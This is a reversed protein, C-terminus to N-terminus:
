LGGVNATIIPPLVVELTLELPKARRNAIMAMGDSPLSPMIFNGEINWVSGTQNVPIPVVTTVWKILSKQNPVLTTLTALEPSTPSGEKSVMHIHPPMTHTHTSIVEFLRSLQKQLNDIHLRMNNGYAQADYSSLFDEAAYPYLQMYLEAKQKDVIDQQQLTTFYPANLNTM